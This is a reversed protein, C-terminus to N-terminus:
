RKPSPARLAASGAAIPELGPVELAPWVLTGPQDGAPRVALTFGAPAAVEGLVAGDSGLVRATGDLPSPAGTPDLPDGPRLELTRGGSLGIRVREVLARGDADTGIVAEARRRELLPPADAPLPLGVAFAKAAALSLANGIAPARGKATARQDVLVLARLDGAESTTRVADSQRQNLVVRYVVGIPDALVPLVRAATGGGVTYDREGAFRSLVVTVAGVTRVDAAAEGLPRHVVRVRVVIRNALTAPQGPAPTVLGVRVWSIEPDAVVAAPAKAAAAPAVALCAALVLPILPLRRHM